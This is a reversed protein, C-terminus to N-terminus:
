IRARGSRSSAPGRRIRDSRWRSRRFSSTQLRDPGRESVACDFNRDTLPAPSQEPAAAALWLAPDRLLADPGQQTRREAATIPLQYFRATELDDRHQHRVPPL